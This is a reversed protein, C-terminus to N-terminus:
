VFLLDTLALTGGTQVTFLATANASSGGDIDLFLTHQDQDYFLVAKGDAFSEPLGLGTQWLSALTATSSLGLATRTLAVKDVGSTFDFFDDAVDVSSIVFRDVGAGGTYTDHGLGGNLTDNGEGGDLVDDGARGLLSDNGIGGSLLDDGDEGDLQDNGVDGFLQDNETGGFLRDNGAGGLILDDGAGGLMSDNGIGGDIQDGGNGGYITDSGGGGFLFDFGDMGFLKNSGAGGTITNDLGNGTGTASGTATLVLNEVNEGLTFATLATRVTDIGGDLGEVVKDGSANVVYSDDGAGGEMSDNGTGGDLSDSGEGGFLTDNGVGGTITDGGEDGFLRDNGDEGWLLDAGAGGTLSDNGSGGYLLDAGDGGLGSDNGSGGYITDGGTGGDLSDNGAGGSLFDFGDLGFLTDSGNGGTIANGLANGTGTSALASTFVLNEINDGLVANTLATRLTDTGGGEAETVSDGAGTVYYTDDGAGGDLTNSGGDGYLADNGDGGLLTDDGLGGYLTDNGLDGSLIDNGANARLINGVANGTLTDNGAGSTANEVVVGRAITVNDVLGGIDSYTLAVLSIEQNASFNSFNITDTGNSDYITFAIPDGWYGDATRPIYGTWQNLLKQLYGGVNSGYGYVSNGGNTVGTFGYLNQIAVIDAPMLTATFAYSDTASQTNDEQSFYSMVTALWSDNDYLNDVGYTADGNYNGAHGLGLAHGIEHMYTQLMYSNLDLPAWNVPINIFSQTLTNGTFDSYAYAGDPDNNDFMLKATKATTAVFKIGTVETWAELAAVAIAQEKASLGTVNYTLTRTSTLAFKYQEGGWYGNTLQNAIQDLTFVPAASHDGPNPAASPSSPDRPAEIASM